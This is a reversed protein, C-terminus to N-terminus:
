AKALNSDYDGLVLSTKNNDNIRVASVSRTTKQSPQQHAQRKGPRPQLAMHPATADHQITQTFYEKMKMHHAANGQPTLNQNFVLEM